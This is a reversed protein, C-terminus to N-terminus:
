LPHISEAPLPADTATADVRGADAAARFIEVTTHVGLKAMIQKRHAYVTKVSLGFRAAIENVNQGDIIGGLVERERPTLRDFRQRLDRQHIRRQIWQRGRQMAHDIRELLLQSQFPKEIFDIAGEQMARVATPVDGHGSLFIIPLMAGRRALQAQLELGNMGPMLVDAIICGARSDDFRDLFQSASQYTEVSRGASELLRRVSMLVAADDDVVFVTPDVTM